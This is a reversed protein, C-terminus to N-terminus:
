QLARTFAANFRRTEYAMSNTLKIIIIIIIIIFIIVYVRIVAAIKETHQTLKDSLFLKEGLEADDGVIKKLNLPKETYCECWRGTELNSLFSQWCSIKDLM